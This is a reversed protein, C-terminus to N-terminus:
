LIRSQAYVARIPGWVYRIRNTHSGIRLGCPRYLIKHLESVPQAPGWASGVRGAHSKIDIWYRKYLIRHM